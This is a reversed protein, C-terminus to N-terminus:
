SSEYNNMDKGTIGQSNELDEFLKELNDSILYLVRYFIDREKETIDRGGELVARLILHNVISAQKKGTETLVAKSRYRKKSAASSAQTPCATHRRCTESSDQTHVYQIFGHDLLESLIRSIGAKDEKCLTCLDAATLGEPHSSLFYLCMVHTGKLGMSRMELKKIRQINKYIQSVGTTLQEFRHIM